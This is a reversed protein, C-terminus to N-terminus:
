SRLAFGVGRVTRIADPDGLKRRLYSVYRDLVNGDPATEGEWISRLLSERGVVRGPHRMLAALLDSERDTLEVPRGHVTVIRSQLDLQLGGAALVPAPEQGRRLLARVRALLEEAAFPKVLYDDGGADLGAVRDAVADRATLFLIPTSLGKARLRRSVGLGDPGPIVVDLVVLDPARREVEALADGGSAATRALYGEAELTRRLMRRIPADDEVILVDAMSQLTRGGGRRRPAAAGRTAPIM